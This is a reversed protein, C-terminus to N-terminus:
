APGAGARLPLPRQRQWAAWARTVAGSGPFLDVFEDDPHLNLVDFLWFCFPDPKAGRVTRRLTVVASVYDRVKPEWRTRKRGGHVIVPEWAYAPNVGPKWSAWPKVWSMVRVAAPCLPLITRLAPSHLSYVWGDPFEDCLRRILAAHGEVTDYVAAEPHDHGYFAVALGLYPPDAYAMRM